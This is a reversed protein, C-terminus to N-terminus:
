CQFAVGERNVMNKGGGAFGTGEASIEVLGPKVYEKEGGKGERDKDKHKKSKKEGGRDTLDMECVYCLLADEEPAKEADEASQM